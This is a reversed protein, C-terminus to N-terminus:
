EACYLIARHHPASLKKRNEAVYDISTDVAEYTSLPLAHHALEAEFAQKLSEPLFFTYRYNDPNTTDEAVDLSVEPLNDTLALCPEALTRPATITISLLM